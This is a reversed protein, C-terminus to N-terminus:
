LRAFSADSSLSYSPVPEDGAELTLERVTCRWSSTTEARLCGM